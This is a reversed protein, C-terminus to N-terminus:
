WEKPEQALERFWIKIKHSGPESVPMGQIQNMVRTRPRHEAFAFQGILEVLHKGSASVLATRQEFARGVDYASSQEWLTVVTWQMPIVMGLPIPVGSVVQVKVEELIAILSSANNQDVIVKECPALLLLTPM